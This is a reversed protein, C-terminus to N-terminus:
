VFSARHYRWYPNGGTIEYGLDLRPNRASVYSLAVIGLVPLDTLVQREMENVLAARPELQAEAQAKELMDDIGPIAVGYHSNNQGGSSDPKVVAGSPLLTVFPQTPVAPFSMSFLGLANLDKRNESHFAAHDIIRMNLNIGAQRLQEQIMLMISSYDERQSTFCDITIGDAFGAEALLQKAKEADPLYQLEPPLDSRVAAGAVGDPLLGVMPTAYGNFTQAIQDNNIAYRIAQRVLPNNLPERNLNIWLYNLSGPRTADFITEPSRQQISVLWGPSRVGEVVDVQGSAFALTRATTDAMYDIQLSPVVAPGDFFDPNAELVIATDPSGSVFQYPGTGIPDFDFGEEGKEEFATKSFISCSLLSLTSAVLFPDPQKLTFQVTLPDIASVSAINVYNIKGATLVTPDLLREFCFVVDDASVEGYGKHFKVGPRLKFTWVLGTADTEWSEALMPRYEEPRTAFVGDPAQVLTDFIQYSPLLVSGTSRAASPNLTITGSAALAIRITSSQAFAPSVFTGGVMATAGLGALGTLFQRREIKM